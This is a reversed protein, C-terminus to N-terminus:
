GDIHRQKPFIKMDKGQKKKKKKKIPDNPTSSYLLNKIYKPYQGTDSIHNAFIEEWETLQRKTKNITKKVICFSKTQHLAM